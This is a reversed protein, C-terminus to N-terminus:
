PIQFRLEATTEGEGGTTAIGVSRVQHLDDRVRVYAQSDNLGTQEALALLKGFDLFVLSTVRKPRSGLTARYGDAGPLGGKADKVAAIGAASTSIVLRGDFISYIVELSSSLRVAFAKEGAVQLQQFTPAKKGRPTFLRALPGQLRLLAQATRVQQTAPAILTLLPTPTRPTIVLAVEGRFLPLVDRQLNLGTGQELRQRLQGLVPAALNLLPSAVRDLGTVGLYALSDKPVAATLKPEFPRFTAAGSRNLISHVTLRAGPKEATLALATGRLAPNDLLSGAVGLLGGQPTLLRRVGDVSAWADLVRGEPLTSSAGTYTPNAALAAGRGARLDLAGRVSAAQGIVLHDGVLAADLRGYRQVQTGRYTFDLGSTVRRLFARAKAQDSVGVVLLSGATTGPTNLLALAAESGLWPEVDRRIDVGGAGGALRRLLGDRLGLYSPFKALVKAARKVGQRDGDTSLHIYVLADGPVLKAAGNAPATDSGGGCGGLAAAAALMALLLLRRM